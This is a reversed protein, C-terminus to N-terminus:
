HRGEFVIDSKLCDDDSIAFFLTYVSFTDFFVAVGLGSESSILFDRLLYLDMFIFTCGARPFFNVM